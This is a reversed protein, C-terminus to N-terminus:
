VFILEIDEIPEIDSEFFEYLQSLAEYYKHATDYTADSIWADRLYYINEDFYYYDEPYIGYNMLLCDELLSISVSLVYAEQEVVETYQKYQHMQIGSMIQMILLGIILCTQLSFGHKTRSPYSSYDDHQFEEVNPINSDTRCADLENNPILSNNNEM